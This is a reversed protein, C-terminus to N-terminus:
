DSKRNEVRYNEPMSPRYNKSPCLNIPYPNSRRRTPTSTRVGVSANAYKPGLGPMEANPESKDSSAAM